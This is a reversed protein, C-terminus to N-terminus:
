GKATIDFLSRLQDLLTGAQVHLIPLQVNHETQNVISPPNLYFWFFVWSIESFPFQVVGDPDVWFFVVCESIGKFKQLMFGTKRLPRRVEWPRRVDKAKRKACLFSIHSATITGAVLRLHTRTTQRSVDWAKKNTQLRGSEGLMVTFWLQVDALRCECWETM